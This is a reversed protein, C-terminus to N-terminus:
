RACEGCRLFTMGEDAPFRRRRYIWPKHKHKRDYIQFAQFATMNYGLASRLAARPRCTVVLVLGTPAACNQVLADFM